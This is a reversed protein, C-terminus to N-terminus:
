ENKKNNNLKFIWENRWLFANFKNIKPMDKRYKPQYKQHCSLRTYAYENMRLMDGFMPFGPNSIGNKIWQLANNNKSYVRGNISNTIIYSLGHVIAVFECVDKQPNNYTESTVVVMKKSIDILNYQWTNEVINLEILIGSKPLELSIEEKEKKTPKKEKKLPM